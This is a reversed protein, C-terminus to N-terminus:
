KSNHIQNTANLMRQKTIEMDLQIQLQRTKEQEIRLDKPGVMCHDCGFCIALIIVAIGLGELFSKFGDWLKTTSM